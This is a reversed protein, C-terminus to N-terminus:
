SIIVIVEEEEEEKKKKLDSSSSSNNFHTRTLRLFYVSELLLAALRM